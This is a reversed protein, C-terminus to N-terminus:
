SGAARMVSSCACRRGSACCVFDFQYETQECRYCLFPDAHQRFQVTNTYGTFDPHTAPKTIEVRPSEKKSTAFPRLVLSSRRVVNRLASTFM